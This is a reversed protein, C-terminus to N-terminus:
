RATLLHTLLYTLTIGPTLSNTLFHTLSYTLLHTLSYTLLHTLSYTLLHAIVQIGTMTAASGGFVGVMGGGMRAFTNAAVVNTITATSLASISLVGGAVASTNVTRFGDMTLSSGTFCTLLHHTGSPLRIMVKCVTGKDPNPFVADRFQAYRTFSVKRNVKSVQGSM